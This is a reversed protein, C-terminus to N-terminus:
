QDEVPSSGRSTRSHRRDEVVRLVVDREPIWPEGAAFPEVQSCGAVEREWGCVVSSPDCTGQM